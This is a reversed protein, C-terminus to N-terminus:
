STHAVKWRGNKKDFRILGNRALKAVCDKLINPSIRLIEAAQKTTGGEALAKLVLTDVEGIKETAPAGAKDYSAISVTREWGKARKFTAKIHTGDEGRPTLMLVGDAIGFLAGTGRMDAEEFKHNAGAEGPKRTHHVIMVCSDHEVAWQRLPRLMRNMGGSDKEELSHFDRLPDLICLRPDRKDLWHLMQELGDDDDLRFTWPNDCILIAENPEVKVKLGVEVMHRLEGAGAEYSFIMVPGGNDVQSLFPPLARCEFGAVLSALAMTFTSKGAKPPAALFVLGPPLLDRVVWRPPVMQAMGLDTFVGEIPEFFEPEEFEHDLENLLFGGFWFSLPVTCCVQQVPQSTRQV